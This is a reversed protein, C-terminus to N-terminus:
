CFRRIKQLASKVLELDTSAFDNGELAKIYFTDGQQAKQIDTQYCDLSKEIFTIDNQLEDFLEPEQLGRQIKEVVGDITPATKMAEHQVIQAFMPADKLQPSSGINRLRKKYHRLARLVVEYGGEERIYIRGLWVKDSM